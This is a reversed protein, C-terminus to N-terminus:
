RGDERSVLMSKPVIGDVPVSPVCVQVDIVHGLLPATTLPMIAMENKSREQHTEQQAREQRKMEQHNHTRLGEERKRKKSRRSTFGPNQSRHQTIGKRALEQIRARVKREDQKRAGEQLTKQNRTGKRALEQTRSREKKTASRRTDSKNCQRGVRTRTVKTM